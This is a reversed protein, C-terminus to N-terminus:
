FQLNLIKILIKNRTMGYFNYNTVLEVTITLANGQQLTAM